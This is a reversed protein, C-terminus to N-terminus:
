KVTAAKSFIKLEETNYKLSLPVQRYRVVLKYYNSFVESFHLDSNSYFYRGAM